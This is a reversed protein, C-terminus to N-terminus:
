TTVATDITYFIKIGILKFDDNLSDSIDRTIQLIIPENKTANTITIPTSEPSIHMVNAGLFTDIITASTGGIAQDIQNSNSYSRGRLNIRVDGSSTVATWYMQFTINGADWASPPHWWFQIRESTTPDFNFTQLMIDNTSLQFEDFEAGDTIVTGWSGAPLWQQQVGIPSISVGSEQWKGISNINQNVGAWLNSTDLYAVNATDTLDTTAANINAGTIPTGNWTGLSIIGLTTISLQGVYSVDIDFTHNAGADILSIRNPTGAFIQAPTTDANISTIADVSPVVFVGDDRLFKTGDPTGTGLNPVPVLSSANLPAYGNAANKNAVDEPTFGLSDEKGDLQIQISSTVGNLTQFENNDVSGDAINIAPIAIPIQGVALKSSGDLGAYGNAANKNAVDEKGALDTILDTVGSQPIGLFNAEVVDIDIENNPVDDTVTIKNSGANINKFELDFGTKQKFTGVGAVGVNSATNVEGGSAGPPETFVGDDRLFKSGDPTGSGLNAVPVLGTVLPAYGNTAGKNASDEPTFGLSNEKLNLADRVAKESPYNTDNGPTGVSTVKNVINEPTFGLSDQKTDSENQVALTTPYKINDPLLLDNVKNSVDEKDDLATQIATSIPKNVDSTNDVNGLGVDSKVLALDTKFQIPTRNILVGAKQQIIDDDNLTLASIENLKNNIPQKGDLATQLGTVDNIVHTHIIPAKSSLDTVLNAIAGQPIFNPSNDGSIYDIIEDVNDITENTTKTTILTTGDPIVIPSVQTDFPPPSPDKTVGKNLGPLPAM